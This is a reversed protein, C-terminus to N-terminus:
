INPYGILTKYCLILHNVGNIARHPKGEEKLFLEKAIANKSFNKIHVNKKNKIHLAFYMSAFDLWHYPIHLKEQLSIPFIKTFFIRDFSPNQCIFVSKKRIINFKQFIKQLEKQVLAASKGKQVMEFTFGTVKLSEKNSQLWEEKSIHVITDYTFLNKGCSLDIISFAIEIIHHVFPDLGNTETDLFIGLMIM